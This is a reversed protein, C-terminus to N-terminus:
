GAKKATESPVEVCKWWPLFLTRGKLLILTEAPTDRVDTVEGRYAPLTASRVPHPYDFVKGMLMTKRAKAEWTKLHEQRGGQCLLFHPQIGPDPNGDAGLQTREDLLVTEHCYFPMGMRVTALIKPYDEHHRAYGTEDSKFPCRECMKECIQGRPMPPAFSIPPKKAPTKM